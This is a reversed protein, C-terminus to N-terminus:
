KANVSFRSAFSDLILADRDLRARKDPQLELTALLGALDESAAIALPRATLASDDAERLAVAAQNAEGFLELAAGSSEPGPKGIATVADQAADQAQELTPTGVMLPQGCSAVLLALVPALRRM